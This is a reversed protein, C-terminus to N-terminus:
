KFVSKSVVSMNLERQMREYKKVRFNCTDIDRECEIRQLFLPEGHLYKGGRSEVEKIDQMWDHLQGLEITNQRKLQTLQKQTINTTKM